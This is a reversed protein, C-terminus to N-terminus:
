PTWSLYAPGAACRDRGEVPAVAAVQQRALVAPVTDVDLEEDVYVAPDDAGAARKGATPMVDVGEALGAPDFQDRSAAGGGGIQAIFASRVDNSRDPFSGPDLEGVRFLLEVRFERLDSDGDLPSDPM